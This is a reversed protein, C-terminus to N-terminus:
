FTPVAILTLTEAYDSASPTLDSIKAKVSFSGRGNVIASSSIFMSELQLPIGGVNAGAGNYPAMASLPGGNVQYVSNAQLGVGETQISLNESVSPITYSVANSVLGGQDGKVFITVGHQANTSIDFWVLETSDVVSGPLLEDFSLQYPPDTKTNTSHIDIDFNVSLSATKASSSPGWPSETFNGHRSKVKASYNTNPNLGSIITGNVGGWQDYTQFEANTLTNSLTGDQMLYYTTVFNDPSVAIAYQTDAPNIKFNSLDEELGLTYFLNPNNQNAYETAIWDVSLPITSVKVEDIEGNFERSASGNFWRRGIEFPHATVSTNTRTETSSGASVGNVFLELTISGNDDGTRVVAVHHWQGDTYSGLKSVSVTNSNSDRITAQIRTSDIWVHIPARPNDERDFIQQQSTDSTKFWAQATYTGGFYDQTTSVEVYDTNTSFKNAGDIKGVGDTSSNSDGVFNRPTAHNGNSTSDLHGATDNAPSEQLHHVLAFDSNWTGSINEQSGVLDNGYYMFIYTDAVSSLLPINVWALLEGTSSNYSEIEHALKTTGDGLTFLIDSGNTQAELALENDSSINILVPFNILGDSGSVQDSNLIIQKRKIWDPHYWVASSANSITINLRNFYNSPNVLGPAPPVNAMMSYSLGPWAKYLDSSLTNSNLEGLVGFLDYNTSSGGDAGGGSWSHNRLEYNTSSPTNAYIQFPILFMGLSVVALFNLLIKEKGFLITIFKLYFRM